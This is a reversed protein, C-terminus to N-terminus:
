MQYLCYNIDVTVSIAKEDKEPKDEELPSSAVDGVISPLKSGLGASDLCDCGTIEGDAGREEVENLGQKDFMVELSSDGFIQGFKSGVIGAGVGRRFLHSKLLTLTTVVRSERGTHYAEASLQRQTVLLTGSVVTRVGCCYINSAMYHIKEYNVAVIPGETARTDVESDKLLNSNLIEDFYNLSAAGIAPYQDYSGLGGFNFCLILVHHVESLLRVNVAGGPQAVHCIGRANGIIGRPRLADNIKPVLTHLVVTFHTTTTPLDMALPHFEQLPLYPKYVAAVRADILLVATSM